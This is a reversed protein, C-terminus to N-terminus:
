RPREEENRPARGKLADALREANVGGWVIVRAARSPTYGAEYLVRCDVLPVTKSPQKGPNAWAAMFVGTILEELGARWEEYPTDRNTRSAGM